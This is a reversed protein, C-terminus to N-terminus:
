VMLPVPSVLTASRPIIFIWTPPNWVYFEIDYREEIARMNEFRLNARLDGGYSPYDEVSSHSSDYYLQWWIGLNVTGDNKAPPAVVTDGGTGPTTTGPTTGPTTGSGGDGDDNNCAALLTFVMVLALGLALLKKMNKM